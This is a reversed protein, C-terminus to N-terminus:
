EGDGGGSRETAQSASASQRRHTFGQSSPFPTLTHCYPRTDQGTGHLDASLRDRCRGGPSLILRPQMQSLVPAEAIAITRNITLLGQGLRRHSTRGARRELDPRRLKVSIHCRVTTTGGGHGVLPRHDGVPVPSLDFRFCLGAARARGVASAAALPRVCRAPLPGFGRGQERGGAAPARRGRPSPRSASAIEARPRRGAVRSEPGIGVDSFHDCPLGPQKPGSPLLSRNRCSPRGRSSIHAKVLESSGNAADSPGVQGCSRCRAAHETLRRRGRAWGPGRATHPGRRLQVASYLASGGATPGVPIVPWPHAAPAVCRRMCMEAAGAAPGNPFRPGRTPRLFQTVRLQGVRRRM